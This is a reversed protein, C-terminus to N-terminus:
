RYTKCIWEDLRSNVGPNAYGSSYGTFRIGPAGPVALRAAAADPIRADGFSYPRAGSRPDVYYSAGQVNRGDTTLTLYIPGNAAGPAGISSSLVQNLGDETSYYMGLQSAGPMYQLSYWRTDSIYKIVAILANASPYIKIIQMGDDYLVDKAHFSHDNADTSHLMGNELVLGNLSSLSGQSADAVFASMDDTFSEHMLESDGSGGGALDLPEGDAGFLKIKVEEREGVSRQKFIHAGYTNAM